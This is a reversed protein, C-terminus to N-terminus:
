AAEILGYITINTATSFNMGSYFCIETVPDTNHKNGGSYGWYNQNGEGYSNAAFQCVFGKDAVSASYRPIVMEFGAGDGYSVNGSNYSTYAVKEFHTVGGSADASYSYNTNYGYNSHRKYESGSSPTSSGQNWWMDIQYAGGTWTNFINGVIILNKHNQPIATFLITTGGGGNAEAIKEYNKAGGGFFGGNLADSMAKGPYGKLYESRGQWDSVNTSPNFREQKM